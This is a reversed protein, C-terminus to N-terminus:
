NGLLSQIWKWCKYLVSQSSSASISDNMQHWMPCHEDLLWDIVQTAPKKLKIIPDIFYLEGSEDKLVNDSEASVDTISLYENGFYYRDESFLGISQLYDSIEQDSPSEMGYCFKQNLVIRVDGNNETIGVFTYRVNPFLINHVIHEWIVDEAHMDKLVRKAFPDHIKFVIGLEEKIYVKSEGTPTSLLTGYRETDSPAIYLNNEKAIKILRQSEAEEEATTGHPRVGSSQHPLETAFVRISSRDSDAQRRRIALEGLSQRASQQGGDYDSRFKKGNDMTNYKHRM